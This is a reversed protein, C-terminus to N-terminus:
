SAGFVGPIRAGCARCASGVLGKVGHSRLGRRKVLVAGCGSCLTDEVGGPLGPVLGPYVWRLGAARGIAVARELTPWDTSARDLMRYDPHFGHLHWPLDPSVGALWGAMEGLEPEGDNLGPIVVTVVEVWVGRSVLSALTEKVPELHGGMGRYSAPRFAKLDVKAADLVPALEDVAEATAHGNSVIATALGADRAARFVDRVWEVTVFPENFSAVVARAGARLAEAVLDEPTTERPSPMAAPDKLAQSVFWNQCFSCSLDCGLMGFTLTLAGPLFHFLPKKEIPDLAVAGVYGWPARLGSGDHFRVRCQGREGPSLRCGHACARCEVRDPGDSAAGAVRAPRTLGDLGLRYEEAEDPATM